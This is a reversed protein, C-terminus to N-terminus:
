ADMWAKFFPDDNQVCNALLLLEIAQSLKEELLHQYVRLILQLLLPLLLSYFLTVESVCNLMSEKYYRM